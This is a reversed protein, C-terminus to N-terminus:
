IILLDLDIFYRHLNYSPHMMGLFHAALLSFATLALPSGHVCPVFFTLHPNLEEVQLAMTVDRSIPVAQNVDGDAKVATAQGVRAAVEGVDPEKVIKTFKKAHRGVRPEDVVTHRPFDLHVVVVDEPLLCGIREKTGVVTSYADVHGRDRAPRSCSEIQM